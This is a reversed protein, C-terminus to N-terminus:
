PTTLLQVFPSIDFNDVSGDGNIDANSINCQPYQAAYATPNTLALIFPAIDFNDVTGDCNLDGVTSDVCELAELRIDDINWGCYRWSTDTTGMTWRLYLTPQNDAIGSLNFSMEEWAGGDITAGNQWLTTWASGNTSVRFYAHDWQPQEVGLWRWFRLSINTKGTCDIPTSTLHREPLNNEYDGNLNYGYVSTGTYGNAPDPAGHDGGGGTPHGFAWLGQTTWGPNSDLLQEYFVNLVGVGATYVDAPATVPRHIVGSQTGEASFYFEPTAACSPPPLTARYLEGGLSEFAVEHYAGGDYRYYLTGSGPVYSEEGDMIQVTIDTPEGPPLLDPLGDPFGITMSPTLYVYYVDEEGNFTAAYALHAGGLDSTMDFYDGMKQQQPWGVHPNFTPTVAVNPSWTQGGDASYAYYLASDYGGPDERTDLWAADIRGNPAVSMTGFWQWAGNNVPDDNVRVPASWTSGGDTSRAFMIDLPDSSSSRSVSCLLYVNGRTVGLTRDVAIWTQGLLGSPNPGASMEMSGDLSVTRSFDWQTGVSPYQMTSSKLVTFGIGCVYLEGDPGVALTGWYPNGPLDTCARFTGAGDYSRTFDGNCASYTRNWCAYLNGDGVGGTTDIVQWQKDGGYAYTGTDWTEGGDFSRYVHCWFDTQYENATLSNYYFVGNSDADVVPDSRFVGPEIVGPFTWTQGGDHSYAYGAQRFDSSITDFQRWGVVMRSPNSPDVALSPENAADGIINNGQANVNVQVSVFGSRSVRAPPNTPRGERDIHIYADRPYELHGVDTRQAEGLKDPAQGWVPCAVAIMLVALWSQVRLSM